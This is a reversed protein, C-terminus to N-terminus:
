RIYWAGKKIAAKAAARNPCIIKGNVLFVYLFTKNQAPLANEHCRNSRNCSGSLNNLM